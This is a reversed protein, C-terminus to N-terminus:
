GPIGHLDPHGDHRQRVDDAQAPQGLLHLDGASETRRDGAVPREGRELHLGRHVRVPVGRGTKNGVVDHTKTVLLPRPNAGVYSETEQTVLSRLGNVSFAYEVRYDDDANSVLRGLADFTRSEATTGGFGAVLTVARATNRDLTDYTDQIVNGAPDTVQTVNSNADYLYAYSKADPFTMGTARDLADYAWSSVNQGDDEHDLLRNNKDFTWQTVQATLFTEIPAGVTLARERQVMRGVGDFTWRTPDGKANVMWVRQSRSDYGFTTTLTNQGNM